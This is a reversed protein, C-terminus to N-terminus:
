PGVLLDRAARLLHCVGRVIPEAVGGGREGELRGRAQTRAIAIANPARDGGCVGVPEAAIRSSDVFEEQGDKWEGDIRLEPGVDLDHPRRREEERSRRPATCGGGSRLRGFQRGDIGHPRGCHKQWAAPQQRIAPSSLREISIERRASARAAASRRCRRAGNGGATSAPLRTNSALGFLRRRDQAEPASARRPRGRPSALWCM